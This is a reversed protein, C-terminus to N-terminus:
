EIPEIPLWLTFTTGLGAQSTVTVEGGLSTILEYCISLSLGSDNPRVAHFPEFVYPLLAAPIAAGSDSIDICIRSEASVSTPALHNDLATRIILQGGDPMSDIAGLVLNLLAQMLLDANAAVRPRPRVRELELVLKVTIHNAIIQQEILELVREILDHVDSSKVSTRVPQYFHHLHQVLAALREVEHMATSLDQKMADRVPVDIHNHADLADQVLSLCGQVVQLPNNIEHAMSATLRGLAAMKETQILQPQAAQLRRTYDRQAEYMRANEIAIAASSAMAQMLDLDHADFEGTSKNIAEMVGIAVEDVIMPVAILSRTTLSTRRDISNFFRQDNRADAVLTATKSNLTAGAIGAEIPMRQGILVETGPGSVAAFELERGTRLLVSAGEADILRKLEAITAALVQKLELSATMTRFATHLAALERAHRQETVFLHELMERAECQLTVDHANVVIGNVAPDGLLNTAVVSLAHWLGDKGRVRFEPFSYKAGYQTQIGRFTELLRSLDEPHVYRMLLDDISRLASPEFLRDAAPSHYTVCGGADIVAIIDSSNEVLTRFRAESAWVKQELHHKYLTLEITTRLEADDFPDVLYGNPERAGARRVTQVNSRTTVYVMPIPGASQIQQAAQLSACSDKSPIDILVLDPPANQVHKLAEENSAVVGSVQYGLNLLRPKLDTVTTNQDEVVLIHANDM